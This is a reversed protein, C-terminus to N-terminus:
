FTIRLNTDTLLNKKETLMGLFESYNIRNNSDSDISDLFKEYEALDENSLTLRM